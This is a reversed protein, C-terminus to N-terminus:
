KKKRSILVLSGFGVIIVGFIIALIIGDSLGKKEGPRLCKVGIVSCADYYSKEETEQEFTKGVEAVHDVYEDDQYATLAEEIINSGNSGFGVQHFKEGIVILPIGGKWDDYDKAVESLFKSNNENSNVQYTVIEFYDDYTAAKDSFYKIFDHCHGCYDAWFLYVKVKEHDTVEPVDIKQAAKVSPTAIILLATILGLIYKKM